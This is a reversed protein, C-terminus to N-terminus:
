TNFFMRERLSNKANLFYDLVFIIFCTGIDTQYLIDALSVKQYLYLDYFSILRM